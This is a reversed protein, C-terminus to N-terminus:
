SVVEGNVPVNDGSQEIVPSLKRENISRTTEGRYSCALKTECRNTIVATHFHTLLWAFVKHFKHVTSQTLRRRTRFILPGHFVVVAGRRPLDPGGDLAHNRRGVRTQGGFLM